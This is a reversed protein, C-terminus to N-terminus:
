PVKLCGYPAKVLFRFRKCHVRIHWIFTVVEWRIVIAYLSSPPMCVCVCVCVCVYPMYVVAVLTQLLTPLLEPQFLWFLKIFSASVLSSRSSHTSNQFVLHQFSYLVTHMDLQGPCFIYVWTSVKLCFCLKLFTALALWTSQTKFM